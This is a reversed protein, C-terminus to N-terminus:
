NWSIPEYDPNAELKKYEEKYHQGIEKRLAKTTKMLANSKEQLIELHAPGLYKNLFQTFEIPNGTFHMHCYSCMCLTNYLSWRTAKRSRSFVHCNHMQRDMNGCAECTHKAKLRVVKSMWQDCAERKM